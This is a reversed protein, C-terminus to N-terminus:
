IHVSGDGSCNSSARSQRWSKPISLVLQSSVSISVSLKLTNKKKHINAIPFVDTTDYQVEERM